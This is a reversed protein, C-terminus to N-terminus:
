HDSQGPAAPRGRLYAIMSPTVRPVVDGMMHPMLADVVKPMLEPMQDRMEDPMDIRSEVREILVPMVRPMMKPLLRPFLAPFLPRMAALAGPVRGMARMTAGFPRPMAAVLEPWMSEMLSAFGEPTLLEIMAEFAGWQRRVEPNPDPIEFGLAEAAYHALDVVEIPSQKKDASVRLPLQRCPCLSLIREAGVEQAEDLRVKGIDAAVPPDQILALVGGCCHAQARNHAMEVFRTGPLARILERPPEYVGSARGIHCSDHWTVTSPARGNAPFRVEGTGIREAVIETYHKTTIGYELGLREAWEPYVKRWMMDCAPCSTVVTDAGAAKVAAVNRRLVEEFVDWRGAVLMPRGCCGGKEGPYPFDVGTADPLKTTAIAIDQEVYSATCGAFYIAKSARGPGHHDKLDEPFWADRDRRYGAWIDGEKRLAATMMEFPPFTMEGEDQVLRGRLKMWSPEIPLAASCRRDCLECTTCALFTDVMRQSWQERGKMYERLWYWKGRPSQSEWGRGYFQDCEAVCYGCQSCSWAYWAVDAPLDRVPGEFREGVQTIVRNGFPRILPEMVSAVGIARGLMGGGLVKKPNLLARPDHEAKFARLAVVREAGLITDAKRAFYLGTSYPRGGHREAIKMITLVLGFVFHYSFKREDSPIFGLIVVEPKGDRGRRVAVGEKVVPQNVRQEVEELTAGLGELPVVVEAPALSPGMRKVVMLMFREEWEHRAIRESLAEGEVQELIELLGGRVTDDDRARWALTVVYAAPLLVREGADHREMVATRNKMEAMRPNIFAISWIPLERAVIAELFRQLAHAEPLAVSGVEMAELPMVRLTVESILGTIGEADSVLDLREGEFTEVEGDPLVVRASVVSERFWGSEYSGIGAGGQALWGGVTSSPYSTPYLRLTLEKKALQRDLQEWILGPQVTVTQADRDVRLVRAMRHFDVVVGRRVPIAGGYGSTAKGRPTLPVRRERAWRVLSVLEEESTPQVVADPLTRGVLPRVLTPIAAIDHGYLKREVHDFSAREGFDHELHRRRDGHKRAM